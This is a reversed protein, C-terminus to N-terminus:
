GSLRRWAWWLTGGGILPPATVAACLWTGIVLLGRTAAGAPDAADLTGSLVQADSGWGLLSMAFWAALPLAGALIMLTPAHKM